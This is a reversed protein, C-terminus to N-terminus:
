IYWPHPAIDKDPFIINDQNVVLVYHAHTFLPFATSPPPIRVLSVRSPFLVTPFTLIISIAVLVKIIDIFIDDEPYSLL